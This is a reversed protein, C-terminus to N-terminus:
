LFCGLAWSLLGMCCVEDLPALADLLTESPETEDEPAEIDAMPHMEKMFLGFIEAKKKPALNQRPKLSEVAEKVTDKCSLGDIKRHHLVHHPMNTFPSADMIREVKHMM